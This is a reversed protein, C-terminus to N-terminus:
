WSYIRNIGPLAATGDRDRDHLKTKWECGARTSMVSQCTDTLHALGVAHGLEHTAIHRWQLASHSYSTNLQVTVGSRMFWTWKGKATQGWDFGGFATTGAWGGRGYNADVVNIIQKYGAATCSSSGYNVVHLVTNERLDRVATAVEQRIAPSDVQNQVCISTGRWRAGYYDAKAVGAALMGIMYAFIAGLAVYAWFKPDRLFRM